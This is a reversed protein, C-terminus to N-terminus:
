IKNTVYDGHTAEASREVKVEVEKKYLNKAAREILERIKERAM